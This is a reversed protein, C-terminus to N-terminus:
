PVAGRGHEYERIGLRVQGGERASQAADGVLFPLAADAKPVEHVCHLVLEADRVFCSRM